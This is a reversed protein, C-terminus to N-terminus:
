ATLFTGKNPAQDDAVTASPHRIAQLTQIAMRSEVAQFGFTRVMLSMCQASSAKEIRSPLDRLQRPLAPDSRSARTFFRTATIMRDLPMRLIRALESSAEELREHTVLEIYYDFLTSQRIQHCDGCGEHHAEHSNDHGTSTRQLGAIAAALRVLGTALEDLDHNCALPDNHDTEQDLLAAKGALVKEALRAQLRERVTLLIELADDPRTM